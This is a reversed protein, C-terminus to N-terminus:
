EIALPIEKIGIETLQDETEQMFNGLVMLFGQVKSFTYMQGLPDDPSMTSKISQKLNSAFTLIKLTKVHTGMMSEPVKVDNIEKLAKQGSEEITDLYEYNGSFLSMVLKQGTALTFNKLMEADRIQAPANSMLIYSVLTLYEVVDERNQEKEEEESLGEPLEKVEIDDTTVEPLVIEEQSVAMVNMMVTNLDESTIEANAGQESKESVMTVLENTARDTLNVASADISADAAADIPDPETVRDGPAPKLPDFGGEIEVGDSYGDGDTDAVEPDTGYIKEEDNSLADSDADDFVAVETSSAEDAAVYLASSALFLFAFVFVSWRLNNKTQSVGM